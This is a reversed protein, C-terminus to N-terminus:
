FGLVTSINFYHDILASTFTFYTFVFREKGFNKNQLFIFKNMAKNEANALFVSFFFCIWGQSGSTQPAPTMKKISNMTQEDCVSISIKKKGGVAIALM